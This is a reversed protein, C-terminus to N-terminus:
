EVHCCGGSKFLLDHLSSQGNVETILRPLDSYVESREGREVIKLDLIVSSVLPSPLTTM